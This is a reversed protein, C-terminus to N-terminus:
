PSRQQRLARRGPRSQKLAVKLRLLSQYTSYGATGYNVFRATPFREQLKWAYTEEDSVAWGQTFSDGLVLVPRVRNEREGATVRSGDALITFRIPTKAEVGVPYVYRGPKPRWGLLRDFEHM